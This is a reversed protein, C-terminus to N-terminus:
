AAARDSSPSASEASAADIITVTGCRPCEVFTGLPSAQLPVCIPGASDSIRLIAGCAAGDCIVVDRFHM